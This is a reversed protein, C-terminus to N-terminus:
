STIGLQVSFISCIRAVNTVQSNNHEGGAMISGIVNEIIPSFVRDLTTVSFPRYCVYRKLEHFMRDALEKNARNNPETWCCFFGSSFVHEPPTGTLFFHSVLDCSNPILTCQWQTPTWHDLYRQVQHKSSWLGKYGSQVNQTMSVGRFFRSWFIWINQFSSCWNFFFSCLFQNMLSNIAENLRAQKYEKRKWIFMQHYKIKISTLFVCDFWTGFCVVAPQYKKRQQFNWSSHNDKSIKNISANSRTINELSM